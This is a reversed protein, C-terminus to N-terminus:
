RMWRNEDLTMGTQKEIRRVRDQIEKDAVDYQMDLNKLLVACNNEM